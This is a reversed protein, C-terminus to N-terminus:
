KIESTKIVFNINEIGPKRLVDQMDNLKDLEKPYLDIIIADHKTYLINSLLNNNHIYSLLNAYGTHCIDAATSQIYNQALTSDRTDNDTFIPRGFYNTFYHLSNIEDRIKQKVDELNFEKELISIVENVKHTQLNMITSLTSTAAGYLMPIIFQKIMKRNLNLNTSKSIKKAFFDYIDGDLNALDYNKTCFLAARIECANYDLEYIKGGIWRSKIVNRLNLPLQQYNVGHIIYPRGTKSSFLNYIPINILPNKLENTEKLISKVVNNHKNRNITTENSLAESLNNYVFLQKKFVNYFSQSSLDISSLFEKDIFKMYAIYSSAFSDIMYEPFLLAYQTAHLRKDAFLTDIKSYANIKLAERAKNKRYSIVVDINNHAKAFIDYESKYIQKIYTIDIISTTTTKKFARFFDHCIVREYQEIFAYFDDFTQNKVDLIIDDISWKYSVKNTSIFYPFIYISASIM